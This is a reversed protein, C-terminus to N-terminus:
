TFMVKITIPASSQDESAVFRLVGGGTIAVPLTTVAGEPIGDLAVFTGDAPNFLSVDRWTESAVDSNPELAQIKVTSTGVMAPIHIAMTLQGKPVSFPAGNVTGGSIPMAVDARPGDWGYIAM